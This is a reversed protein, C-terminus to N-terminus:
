PRKLDPLTKLVLFAEPFIHTTSKFTGDHRKLILVYCHDDIVFHAEGGCEDKLSAIPTWEGKNLTKETKVQKYM